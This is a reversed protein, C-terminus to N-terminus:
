LKGGAPMLDIVGMGKKLGAKIQALMVALDDPSGFDLTLTETDDDYETGTILITLGTGSLDEIFNDIKLRSGPEVQSVPARQGPKGKLYSRIQISGDLRYQPDKYKALFRKGLDLARAADISGYDLPLPVRTGWRAISAAEALTADDYPTLEQTRGQDDTYKVIIWNWINAYDRAPNVEGVLNEDGVRIKYDYDTLAPYQLCYLMPTGAPTPAKESNLMGVAWSNYAADGLNAARILTEALTETYDQTLFPRLDLANAQIYAYNDTIMGAAAMYSTVDQCIETLNVTAVDTINAAPRTAYVTIDYLYMGVSQDSPTTQNAHSTLRFEIERTGAAPNVTTTTGVVDTVNQNWIDAATTINRLSAGWDQAGMQFKWTFMIRAITENIPCTYRLGFFDNTLWDQGSQPAIRLGQERDLNVSIKEVDSIIGLAGSQDIWVDEGVRRDAWWHKWRTKNMLWGWSGSLAVEFGQSASDFVSIMSDIYGEYVPRVGNRITVRCAGTLDTHLLADSRPIYFSADLDRGGTYGKKFVIHKANRSEFLPEILKTTGTYSGYFEVTLNNRRTNMIM